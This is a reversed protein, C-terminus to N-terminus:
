AEQCYEIFIYVLNYGSYDKSTIVNVETADMFVEINDTSPVGAFTARLALFNTTDTLTVWLDILTFNADFVIGHPFVNIGLLIPTGVIVKRFVTRFQGPSTEPLVPNSPLFQKGTILEEDLLWGIERTNVAQSIRKLQEVIFQRGEEWTEPVEDYLPLYSEFVQSDFSM